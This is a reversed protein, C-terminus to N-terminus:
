AANHAGATREYGNTLVMFEKPFTNALLLRVSSGDLMDTVKSLHAFLLDPRSDQSHSLRSAIQSANTLNNLAQHAPNAQNSSPSLKM